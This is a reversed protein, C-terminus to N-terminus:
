FKSKSHPDAKGAANKVLRLRHMRVGKKFVPSWIKKAPHGANKLAMGFSVPNLNRVYSPPSDGCWDVLDQLLIEAPAGEGHDDMKEVRGSSLWATVPNANARQEEAAEEHYSPKVFAGRDLRRRYAKVLRNLIGPAENLLVEHYRDVIEAPKEDTTYILLMRTMLAGHVDSSTMMENGHFILRSPLVMDFPNVYLLKVPVREGTTVRLLIDDLAKPVRGAESGVNIRSHRMRYRSPAEDMDSLPVDTMWEEPLLGGLTLFLTSKGTSSEGKLYLFNRFRLSPFLCYGLYEELMDVARQWDAEFTPEDAYEKPPKCLRRVFGDWQPCVAEPDYDLALKSFAFDDKREPRFSLDSVDLAGNQFVLLGEPPSDRHVSLRRRWLDIGADIDSKRAAPFADDAMNSIARLPQQHGPDTLMLWGEGQWHFIDSRFDRIDEPPLTELLHAKIQQQVPLKTSRSQQARIAMPKLMGQQFATQLARRAAGFDACRPRLSELAKSLAEFAEPEPLGEPHVLGGVAFAEKNLVKHKEGDPASAVTHCAKALLKRRYEPAPDDVSGPDGDPRAPEPPIDLTAADEDGPILLTRRGALPDHLDRGVFIPAATYHVQVTRLTALDILAAGGQSGARANAAGAWRRLETGGHPAALWFWIHASVKGAAKTALEGWRPAMGAAAENAAMEAIGASSSFQVVATVGRLEPAHDAFLEILHRAVGEPDALVSLGPPLPVKDADLMVWSRPVDLFTAPKGPQNTSARRTRGLDTDTLPAGRIVCARADDELHLLRQHLGEIGSVRAPEASFMEANSYREVAVQGDAAAKYTKTMRLLHGTPRLITLGDPAGAAIIPPSSPNSFQSGDPM